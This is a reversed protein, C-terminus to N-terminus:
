KLVEWYGGKTGIRKVLGLNILSKIIRQITRESMNLIDAIEKVKIKPKSVIFSMVKNEEESLNNTVNDTVINTVNNRIFVFKFGDDIKEYRWKIGFANCLENMRSFGTGSKEVDKSRFLVDLIIPNRKMSSMRKNIFDNPSYNEPFSGPNVIEIENPYINIEITTSDSYKAHAFSNVVIERIAKEPIEPIEERKQKGIEVKWNIHEFIYKIAENVLRYINGKYSKLDIFNIKEKTAYVAMKLELKCEKGFLYFGANNLMDGDTLSLMRLLDNKEYKTMELRNAKTANEYFNLLDNENADDIPHESIDKEWSDEYHKKQFMALLEQQSMPRNEDATRIYYVGKCSYPQNNGQYSLKIVEVGDVYDSTIFPSIKPEISEYVARSVDRFTSDTLDLKIPTGDNKVGFYITVRGHKNLLGSISKMAEPLERTSKKFEVTENERKLM